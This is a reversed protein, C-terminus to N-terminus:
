QDALQQNADLHEHHMLAVTKQGIQHGVVLGQNDDHHFHIGGYFRSIAAEAAQSEFFSMEAPFIDGMVVAAAGSITSHGSTYTPFNPTPIVTTFAPVRGALRMFPRAVWTYTIFKTRWCSVFADYMTANLFAHARAAALNGLGYSVIRDNLLGNWITPPPLDAWKHVIAIQEATRVFSANYVEEVEALDEPSGCAYPPEPQFEAGSTTIWTKWTGCMPLAPNVGTWICVDPAPPPGPFVADSGDHKGYLVALMGVFKGLFWSRLILPSPHSLDVQAAIADKIRASDLPFLYFSVESAAGAALANDALDGRRFVRGAVLADYIAVQTLAYARAFRPPPLGRLRGLETTLQNWYVIPSPPLALLAPTPISGISKLMEWDAATVGEAEMGPAPLRSDTASTLVFTHFDATASTRNTLTPEVSNQKSCSSLVFAAFLATLVTFRKM